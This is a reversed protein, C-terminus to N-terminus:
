RARRLGAGIRIGGGLGAEIFPVAHKWKPANVGVLIIAVARWRHSGDYRTGIGGGAYPSWRLRHQPDILFHVVADGRASLPVGGGEHGVLSPGAGLVLELHMAPSIPIDVGLAAQLASLHSLIADVRVEPEVHRSQSQARASSAFAFLTAVTGRIAHRMASM